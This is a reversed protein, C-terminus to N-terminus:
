FCKIGFLLIYNIKTLMFKTYKQMDNYIVEAHAFVNFSFRNKHSDVNM